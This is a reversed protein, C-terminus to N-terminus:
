SLIFKRKGHSERTWCKRNEDRSVHVLIDVRSNSEGRVGTEDGRRIDKGRSLDLM